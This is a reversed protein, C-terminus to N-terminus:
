EVTLTGEMGAQRHGPVSCYYVYEGAPLNVTISAEQGANLLETAFETDEINFDHQLVGGNVLTITVDTDAAISLETPEYAIDVATVTVETEGGGSAAAEAPTAAAPSAEEAPTAQEVPTAEAAEASEVITITGEMGSERHGPVSCYFTVEAGVQVDDPINFVAEQGGALAGSDIDWEDIVIDHVLVGPNVLHIQQGPAASFQSPAFKMSDLAAVRIANPDVAVSPTAAAEPTAGEGQAVTLTGEM